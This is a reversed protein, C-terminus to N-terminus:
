IPSSVLTISVGYMRSTADLRKRLRQPLTIYNDFDGLIGRCDEAILYDWDINIGDFRNTQIYTILPEFFADQASTSKSLDSFTTRYPGSDNM